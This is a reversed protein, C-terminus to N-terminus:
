AAGAAGSPPESIAHGPREPICFSARTGGGPLPDIWLLGGHEVILQRALHLGAGVGAKEKRLTGEGTSFPEDFSRAAVARELGSGRDTVSVVVGEDLTRATIEVPTGEPSFRCANDLLERVVAAIRAGDAVVPLRTPVTHLIEITPHVGAVDEISRRILPSLDVAEPDLEFTGKDLEAITIIEDVIGMLKDLSGQLQDLFEAREEEPVDPNRLVYSVGKAVTIPTRLEHSMNALFDAKASTGRAVTEQVESLDRGLQEVTDVARTLEGALLRGAAPSLAVAGATAARITAAIDADGDSRLVCGRGGAVITSALISPNAGTAHCVVATDPASAHLRKVLETGGLGELGLACVVVDPRTQAALEVARFPDTTSRSRM